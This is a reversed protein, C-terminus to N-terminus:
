CSPAGPPAHHRTQEWVIDTLTDRDASYAYFAVGALEAVQDAIHRAADRHWGARAARLVGSNAFLLADSKGYDVAVWADGLWGARWADRYKKEAKQVSRRVMESVLEDRGPGAFYVSESDPLGAAQVNVVDIFRTEGGRSAAIDADRGGPLQAALSVSWGEEHLRRALALESMTHLFGHNLNSFSARLQRRSGRDMAAAANLAALHRELVDACETAIALATALNLPEGDERWTTPRQYRDVIDGLAADSILDAIYPRKSKEAVAVSLLEDRDSM